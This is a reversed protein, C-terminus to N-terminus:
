ENRILKLVEDRKQEMLEKTNAELNLRLLSETNSPRVNFWWDKYYVSVGDLHLIKEANSYKEELEKMKSEKNEVESNIEGSQFYKKLPGVLQSLPKDEEALMNLAIALTAFSSETFFSDKYYFHGSLEGAFLADEDRMQKKIFSHGVRCMTAKGGNAEIFEPVIKSSRLDYLIRAGPSTKLLQKGILATTLDCPIINGKEDILLCRDGDGDLALGLDAKEEVVKKQLDKLTEFKLPNAEHNPFNFDMKCYMSIFEFPLKKFIKPFTFSGMGNGADVVIKFKKDTKVFSINHKIFDKMVNKETIKGKQKPEEFKNKMVLEEIDKIGTDYSIPFANERCFKFGNYEKPNHSATVMISSKAKAAAFYFMPTSCLGIDIVNAGQDTVGKALAEFLQPSSLRGDRGILVEKTKLFVVFARGINYAIDENLQDPFIGRIDYAKFIGAIRIV